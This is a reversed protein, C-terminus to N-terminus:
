ALKQCRRKYLNDIAKIPAKPIKIWQRKPNLDTVM